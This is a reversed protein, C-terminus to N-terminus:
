GRTQWPVPSNFKNEFNESNSALNCTQRDSVNHRWSVKYIWPNSKINCEFFVDIGERLTSNLSNTGLELSVVPIDASSFATLIPYFDNHPLRLTIPIQKPILTFVSKAAM